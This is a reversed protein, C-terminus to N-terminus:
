KGVRREESRVAKEERGRLHAHPHAEAADLDIRRASKFIDGRHHDPGVASSRIESGIQEFDLNVAPFQMPRLESDQQGLRFIGHGLRAAPADALRSWPGSRRRYPRRLRNVASSTCSLWIIYSIQSLPLFHIRTFMRSALFWSECSMLRACAPSSTMMALRPSGTARRSGMRWVCTPWFGACPVPFAIRSHSSLWGKGSYARRVESSISASISSCRAEHSQDVKVGTDHNVQHLLVQPPAASDPGCHGSGVGLESNGRKHFALAEDPRDLAVIGNQLASVLFQECCENGKLHGLYDIQLRRHKAGAKPQLSGVRQMQSARLMVATLRQPGVVSAEQASGAPERLINQGFLAAAQLAKFRRDGGAWPATVHKQNLRRKSM